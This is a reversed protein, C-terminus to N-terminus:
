EPNSGTDEPDPDLAKVLLFYWSAIIPVTDAQPCDALLNFSFAFARVSFVSFTPNAIAAIEARVPPLLRELLASVFGRKLTFVTGVLQASIIITELTIILITFCSLVLGFTLM